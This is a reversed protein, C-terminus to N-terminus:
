ITASPDAPPVAIDLNGHVVDAAVVTLLRGTTRAHRRLALFADQVSIDHHRALYGKAQEIIVRSNLATQLQETIVEQRALARQHVLGITATDALAQGLAVTAPSVPGSTVSFLNLAGLMTQRLRMPLAQVSTYGAAVAAAAFRPWPSAPGDLGPGQVPRGTRFADLCPGESNQLQTLEVLRAAETSAAVLNLAGHHDVLLIGCADVGLIEVCRAALRDLYEIIDFDAVLTDTLEIFVEQVRHESAAM